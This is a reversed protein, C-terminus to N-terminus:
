PKDSCLEGDCVKTESALTGTLYHVTGLGSANLVDLKKKHLPDEESPSIFLEYQMEATNELLSPETPASLKIANFEPASTPAVEAAQSFRSRVQTPCDNNATAPACQPGSATTLQPASSAHLTDLKSQWTLLKRWALAEPGMAEMLGEVTSLGKVVMLAPGLLLGSPLFCSALIRLRRGSGVSGSPSWPQQRNGSSGSTLEVHLAAERLQPPVASALPMVSWFFGDQATGKIACREIVGNAWCFLGFAGPWAMVKDLQKALTLAKSSGESFLSLKGDGTSSSPQSSISVSARFEQFDSKFAGFAEQYASGAPSDSFLSVPSNLYLLPLQLNYGM